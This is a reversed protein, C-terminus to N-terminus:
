PAPCLPPGTWPFGDFVEALTAWDAGDCVLADVYDVLDPGAKGRDQAGTALRALAIDGLADDGLTLADDDGDGGDWLDWLIAAVVGENIDQSLPGTAIPLPFTFPLSTDDSTPAAGIKDLDVWYQTNQQMSFFRSQPAGGSQSWQAFFTAFGESWGLPAFARSSWSHSGGVPPLRSFTDMVWHGLEHGSLSPTWQFPAAQAGTSTGSLWIARDFTTTVAGQGDVLRFPGWDGPFFCSLCPPTLAPNWLVALRTVAEPDAIVGAAHFYSTARGRAAELDLLIQLAGSGDAMMITHDGLDLADPAPADFTWAWVRHVDVPTHQTAASPFTVGQGDVLTLAPLAHGPVPRSVAAVVASLPATPRLSLSLAFAGSADTAAMGLDVAGARVAVDHDVLPVIEPAALATLEVNPRRREFLVRGRVVWACQGGADCTADADCAGCSGGCGDDGCARGECSGSCADPTADLDTTDAPDVGDTPDVGDPTADDAGVADDDGAVDALDADVVDPDPGADVEDPM